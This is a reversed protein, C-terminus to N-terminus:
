MDDLVEDVQQETQFIKVIFMQMCALTPFAEVM